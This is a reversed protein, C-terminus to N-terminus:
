QIKKQQEDIRGLYYAVAALENQHKCNESWQKLVDMSTYTEDDDSMIFLGENTIELMREHTMFLSEPFEISNRDVYIVLNVKNFMPDKKLTNHPTPKKFIRRFLKRM